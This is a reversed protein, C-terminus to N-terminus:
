KYPYMTVVYKYTKRDEVKTYYIVRVYQNLSIDFYEAKYNGNSLKTSKGGAIVNAAIDAMEARTLDRSFQSKKQGDVVASKKGPVALHYYQIHCAGYQKYGNEVKVNGFGNSHGFNNGTDCYSSVAAEAPQASLGLSCSLALTLAILFSVLKKM